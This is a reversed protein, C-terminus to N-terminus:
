VLKRTLRVFRALSRRFTKRVACYVAFNIACNAVLFLNNFYVLVMYTVTVNSRGLAACHEYHEKGASKSNM